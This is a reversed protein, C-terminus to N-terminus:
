FLRPHLCPRVKVGDMGLPLAPDALFELVDSVARASQDRREVNLGALDEAPAPPPGCRADLAKQLRDRVLVGVSLDVDDPVVEIPGAGHRRVFTASFVRFTTDM